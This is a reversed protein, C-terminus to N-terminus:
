DDWPAKSATRITEIPEQEEWAKALQPAEVSPANCSSEELGQRGVEVEIDQTLSQSVLGVPVGQREWICKECFMANRSEPKNSIENSDSIPVPEISGTASCSWCENLILSRSSKKMQKLRKLGKFLAHEVGRGSTDYMFARTDDVNLIAVIQRCPCFLKAVQCVFQGQSWEYHRAIAHGCVCIDQNRKPRELSTVIEDEKAGFLELPEV